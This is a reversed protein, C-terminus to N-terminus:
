HVYIFMRQGSHFGSLRHSLYYLHSDGWWLQVVIRLLETYVSYWPRTSVPARLMM